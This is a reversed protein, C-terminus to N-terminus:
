EYKISINMLKCFSQIAEHKKKNQKDSQWSNPVLVYDVDRDFKLGGHLHGEFHGMGDNYPTGNIVADMARKRQGDAGKPKKWKSYWRDILMQHPDEMSRVWKGDEGYPLSDADIASGTSRKVVDSDKKLVFAIEGAFKNCGLGSNLLDVSMYNPRDSNTAEYYDDTFIANENAERHETEWGRNLYYDNKFEGDSTLQDILNVGNSLQEFPDFHVLFRANRANEQFKKYLEEAQEGEIGRDVKFCKLAYDKATKEFNQSNRKALDIAFQQMRTLKVTGFDQVNSKIGDDEKVENAMRFENGKAIYRQISQSARMWLINSNSPLENGKSDFRDFVIGLEEARNMVNNKGHKKGYATVQAKVQDTIVLNAEEMSEKVRTRIGNIMKGKALNNKISECFNMWNKSPDKHEKWTISHEDCWDMLQQKDGNFTGLLKLFAKDVPDKGDAKMKKDIEKEDRDVVFTEGSLIHNKISNVCNMWYINSNVPIARGDNTYEKWVIDQKRAQEMIYKKTYMHKLVNDFYKMDKLMDATPEPMNKKSGGAQQIPVLNKKGDTRASDEEDEEVLVQDKLRDELEKKLKPNGMIIVPINSIGLKKAMDVLEPHELIEGTPSIKVPPLKEGNQYQQIAKDLKYKDPTYNRITNKLEKISIHRIPFKTSQRKELDKIDDDSHKYTSEDKESQQSSGMAKDDTPDIWQMRYHMKGNKGKYPIRRRVLKGKDLSGGKKLDVIYLLNKRLNGENLANEDGKIYKLVQLLNHHHDKEDDRIEEIIERILPDKVKKLVRIYNDIASDEEGLNLTVLSKLDDELSKLLQEDANTQISKWVEKYMQRAKKIKEKDTGVVICPVHTYGMERSAEWRHHGDQVDYNYGIEVPNLAIGEKMKEKLSNVKARDTAEDTQYVQRLRNVPIYIVGYEKEPTYACREAGKPLHSNDAKIIDIVISKKTNVIRKEILDQEFNDLGLTKLSNDLSKSKKNPKVDIRNISKRGKELNIVIKSM